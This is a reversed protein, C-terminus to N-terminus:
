NEGLLGWDELSDSVLTPRIINKYLLNEYILKIWLWSYNTSKIRQSLNLTKLSYSSITHLKKKGLLLMFVSIKLDRLTQKGGKRRENCYFPEPYGVGSVGGVTGWSELRQIIDTYLQTFQTKSLFFKFFNSQSTCSRSINWIGFRSEFICFRKSLGVM